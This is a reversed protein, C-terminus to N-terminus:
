DLILEDFFIWANKGAGPNGAPIIGPNKASIRFYRANVAPFSLLAKRPNNGFDDSKITSVSTWNSGDNGYELQIQTPRYIWNAPDHLLGIEAKSVNQTTELDLTAIM